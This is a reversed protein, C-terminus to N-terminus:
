IMNLFSFLCLPYMQGAFPMVPRDSFESSRKELVDVALDYDNLIVITQDFVTVSSIPGYLQKHKQWHIWQQDEGSPIDFINGLIPLGKPGPPKPPRKSRSIVLKCAYSATCLVVLDILILCYNALM